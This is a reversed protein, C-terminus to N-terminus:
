SNEVCKLARDLAVILDKLHEEWLALRTENRGRINDERTPDCHEEGAEKAAKMKWLAKTKHAEQPKKVGVARSMEKYAEYMEGWDEGEIGQFLAQCFAYWDYDVLPPGWREKEIHNVNVSTKLTGVEEARLTLEYPSERVTVEPCGEPVKRGEFKGMGQSLYGVELARQNDIKIFVRLGQTLGNRSRVGLNTVINQMLGDEDEQQNVLLKLANIFNGCLGQPVAHAKFVKARNISEGTQVVLLRNPQKWDYKEM